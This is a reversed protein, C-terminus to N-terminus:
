VKVGPEAMVRDPVGMEMAGLPAYAMMPVLVSGRNGVDWDSRVIPVRVMVGLERPWYIMSPWVRMGPPGAM